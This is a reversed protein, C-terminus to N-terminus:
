VLTALKNVVSLVCFLDATSNYVAKYNVTVTNNGNVSDLLKVSKIKMSMDIRLAKTTYSGGAGALASGLFEMRVKKTLGAKFDDYRAVGVADHEFKISGEVSAGVFKIFSFSLSGDGTWVALLGTKIGMNFELWTDTLRTAGITGDVADLYIKGKQFLIQEVTPPTIGATFTGKGM